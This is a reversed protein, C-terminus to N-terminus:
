NSILGHRVRAPPRKCSACLATPVCSLGPRPLSDKDGVMWSFAETSNICYFLQGEGKKEREGLEKLANLVISFIPFSNPPPNHTHTHTLRTM